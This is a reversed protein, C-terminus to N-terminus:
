HQREGAERGQDREAPEGGHRHDGRQRAVEDEHRRHEDQEVLSVIPDPRAEGGVRVVVRIGSLMDGASHDTKIQTFSPQIHQRTRSPTSRTEQPLALARLPHLPKLRHDSAVRERPWAVRGLM